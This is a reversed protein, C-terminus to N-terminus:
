GDNHELLERRHRILDVLAEPVGYVDSEPAVELVLRAVDGYPDRWLRRYLRLIEPHSGREIVSEIAARSGFDPDALHDTEIHRHEM